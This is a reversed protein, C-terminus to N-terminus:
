PKPMRPRCLITHCLMTPMAPATYMWRWKPTVPMKMGSSPSHSIPATANTTSAAIAIMPVDFPTFRVSPMSPRAPPVVTNANRDKAKMAIARPNGHSATNQAAMTPATRANRQNLTWGASNKMPSVPASDNPALRALTASTVPNTTSRGTAPRTKTASVTATISCTPEKLIRRLRMKRMDGSWLWKSSMPHGSSFTVIRKQSMPATAPITAATRANAM